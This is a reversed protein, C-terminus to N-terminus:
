HCNLYSPPSHFTSSSPFPPFLSVCLTKKEKNEGFFETEKGARSAKKDKSFYADDFKADVQFSELDVKTSTAIM